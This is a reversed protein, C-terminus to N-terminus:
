SRKGKLSPARRAYPTLESPHRRVYELIWHRNQPGRGRGRVNATPGQILEPKAAFAREQLRTWRGKVATTQVGIQRAIAADPLGRLALRLIRQEAETFFIQPPSYVFMALLPNRTDGARERSLVTLASSLGKAGGIDTFRQLLDFSRSTVAVEIAADGSVENVIRAINFGSHVSIFAAIIAGIVGDPDKTSPDYNTNIVVLQLGDTANGEAIRRRNLIGDHRASDGLLLRKGFQPQPTALLRDVRNGDAFVTIGFGRVRGDQLVLAGRACEDRLLSRVRALATALEDSTYARRDSWLPLCLSANDPTM